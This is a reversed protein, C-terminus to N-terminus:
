QADYQKLIRRCKKKMDQIRWTSTETKWGLLEGIESDSYGKAHLTLLTRETQSLRVRLLQERARDVAVKAPDIVTAGNLNKAAIDDIPWDDPEQTERRSKRRRWLDIARCKAITVALTELTKLVDDCKASPEMKQVEIYLILMVEQEINELDEPTLGLRQARLIRNVTERLGKLLREQNM